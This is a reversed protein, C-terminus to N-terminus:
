RELTAVPRAWGASADTKKVQFCAIQFGYAPPFDLNTLKELYRYEREIGAFRGKRLLSRDATGHFDEAPGKFSRDLARADIGMIKVGRDALLLTADREM